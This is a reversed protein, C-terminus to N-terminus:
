LYKIFDRAERVGMGYKDALIYLISMDSAGQIRYAEIEVRARFRPNTFYRWFYSIVGRKQQRIHELEHAILDKNDAHAPRVLIFWRLSIADFRKPIFHNTVIIRAM